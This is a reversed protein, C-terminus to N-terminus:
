DRASELEAVRQRAYADAAAPLGGLQLAQRYAQHAAPDGLGDLSLGLGAWAAASAPTLELLARYSAEAQEYRAQQQYLAGLMQLRQVAGAGNGTVEELVQSAGQVDGSQALLRAKILVFKANGPEHKLGRELQVMVADNREGRLMLGILLERAEGDGPTTRLREHLLYEAFSLEGLEIEQRVEDLPRPAVPKATKVRSPRSPTGKRAKKRSAAVPPLQTNRLPLYDVSEKSSPAAPDAQGGLEPPPRVPDPLPTAPVPEHLGPPASEAPMTQEKRAVAGAGQGPLAPSAPEAQEIPAQVRGPTVPGPESAPLAPQASPVSQTMVEAPAAPVPKIVVREADASDRVPYLVWVAAIFALIVAIGSLLLRRSPGNEDTAAGSPGDTRAAVALRLPRKHEVPSRDELDQLVQNLLSM